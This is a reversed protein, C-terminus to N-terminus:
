SGSRTATWTTNMLDANCRGTSGTPFIPAGKFVFQATGSATTNSTFTGSFTTPIAYGIQGTNFASNVIKIHLDPANVVIGAGESLPFAGTCNPFDWYFDSIDHHAPELQLNVFAKCGVCFQLSGQNNGWTGTWTGDFSPASPSTPSSSTCGAFSLFAMVLAGSGLLRALLDRRSTFRPVQTPYM